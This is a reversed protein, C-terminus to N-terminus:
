GDTDRLFEHIHTAVLGQRKGIFATHGTAPLIHLQAGAILEATRRLAQPSILRDQSGGIILTPMDLQNIRGSLDTVRLIELGNLLTQRGPVPAEKLGMRLCKLQYSADKSGGVELAMFRQLARSFDAEIQASFGLYVEADMGEPWSETQVFAPTASLLILRRVETCEALAAQLAVLGGLSWGLWSAPPVVAAIQVALENIDTTLTYEHNSGHGPLDVLHLRYHKELEATLRSFIGSNMAWGHLLVLDPGSGTVQVKLKDRM